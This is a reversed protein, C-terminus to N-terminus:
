ISEGHFAGKGSENTKNIEQSVARGIEAAPGPSMMEGHTCAVQVEKIEGRVYPAWGDLTPSDATRGETAVFFLLDGDLRAPDFTRVLEINNIWTDILNSVQEPTLFRLSDVKEDVIRMFKERNMTPQDEAAVPCGLDGLILTLAEHEPVREEDIHYESGPYSDLIALLAIEENQRRLETAMAYAVLGGFSWGLLHYPGTPQVARIQAVYDRAMADVSPPCLKPNTLSRAQLAYLPRGGEVSGLLNVYSWAFGMGPHICFLPPLEGSTRLPLLVDLPDRDSGVTTVTEALAAVTPSEFLDRVTLDVRLVDRVRSILRTALLSHGGLDFFSDHVGVAPLQLVEAFLGALIEETPTRSAAHEPSTQYTPAPLAARDIKGNGTLPLAELTVIAAPIMFAPLHASLETRLQVIDLHHGSAPVVYGVLQKGTHDERAIVVSQAVHPLRDLAAEIEGLEIRFGRIKVQDDSRGVFELEGEATWRVVDGTRYMREGPQGFADAIFREATQDPRAYYGRALGAGALYLEGPVGPPLPQLRQDLVYARIGDMPRGIPITAAEAPVPRPVPTYTAFTTTETPGYVHVIRTDPLADTAARMASPSVFEGGTWIEALGELGPPREDVLHNFLATTLFVATVNQQSIVDALRAPELIGPPAVVVRGGNLLPIWIEYTSADFAHPSHMLVCTHASAHWARDTALAIVDAHTVAVGKPLGTSGSTFMVYALRDGRSDATAGGEATRAGIQGAATQGDRGDADRTGKPQGTSGSTFMVYAPRDGRSDATTGSEATRAGIQGATTQGDRGDTDRTGKPLGASGSTFMVHALREGRSGGALGAEATRADIQGAATQGDANRTDRAQDEGPQDDDVVLLPLGLEAARERMATDTLLIPTNTHEAVWRMRETPFSPHLPVYAGGAKLVALSAVIVQPSRELLMAVPTEAGVGAATLRSALAQARANLETYTWTVGDGCVAVADPSARVWEDFVEVVSRDTHINSPEAIAAQLIDQREGPTLIGIDAIPLDPNAIVSELIQRLRQTLATATHQTFLDTNFELSGQFGDAQRDSNVHEVVEFTLDFKATNSHVPRVQTELGNLRMDAEFATRYTLMVHALPHIGLARAPNLEEVLRDFPLDQNSYAALDTGRVRGLVERFSPTGSIDVRLVLTNVFFGVLDDLAEDVRGAVVSGLPIDTGAGLRHLLTVLAAHIVMFVSVDHQRALQQIRAHTKPDIRFEVTGGRGTPHAPRPRDFPLDLQEPAGRLTERWFALQQDLLAGKLLERQWLVYDGYSVPLPEWEPAEGRCRAAYAEGLDRALPGLSWGDAAIHHIVLLLTWRQAGTAFLWARVPLDQDLVFPTSAAEILRQRLDESAPDSVQLAVRVQEVDLVRQYPHGQRSEFVTRLPEHRAVVDGLAQELATVNLPGFIDVALPINYAAGTEQMQDLFWLRQQAFSLPLEPSKHERAHVAPRVPGDDLRAALAEVTPAEFLDRVSLESQLVSRVRSILRTALLSHGGLDFFNDHVGVAPLQLVEAFLGALIEQMVTRALTHDSDSYTPAPLASRDIKGNPTLPLTKLTMIAAPIMFAPLHASLEARLQGGDVQHESTPVVYGVLQKGTHDERAVVASQAVHPLRDLAAEIEGLEIRFGRIKVQDDSRGIFELEGDTTWRVLDGTRYMREGPRGFTDAIFREATQDPRAYYGRALGAGALYLEGPVGPPLLRLRQDLVYARMGDMPRGIPITAAEAPIPRSLPICTAFTTTETPGYVHVIQTHPFADTAARMASPSVFEGGTWIEALGELGPPHEDVLHNFLATTLFVATVNQQSIVQALRAPELIGAPAVVIRGGNLLPVWIEYTSADFAHPSHMLVRTHASTHWARDTALAVVDAHTVAVGKPQGTSGSTFMVYALREGGVSENGSRYRGLRGRDGDTPRDAHSGATARSEATQADIQGATTQGDRGDTDRTGKPLGTSGSTFMVHALREGRSGGALGAEATRADIQGAATQGDANRTDRAQDEGPQDDDVVLLPLGLEAARERMATDTLLIPTNTHEAVWRMRETPFSPHLPVYAGGAKLVALSAVIVQPSRELLMAVPTEADVGTATLRSALAQARANLEAYTWTLGDGCVAVADPSARVWEDFVEVVSTDTKAANPEATAAAVVQQQESPTLIDLDDVPLDPDAIVTEVIQRLRQTLATATHQTFLDTNFELSGQIGDARKDEDFHEIVEFTLDFKATGSHVPRVRTELGNLRMDAEFATRYALMVHALPHIGLARAPNLEEVLRDFPLDQNSYAALDTERVRHLLERFSPNGSIDVRLVLTNVFFGVLDDLTEDVRGAVVSGLPIDTGAGLRHLLTVLAAHIVMFTSVGHERAVTQIRTHTQPDIQFEVTDGQGSPHAPRPRDFPLDLQEPAGRLTERWFALQKDLLEGELLDHQWLVYDRFSVPLPEWTPAEGRCRAAYADALDRALPGLSWGDAAIHHIVLLLTWRQAGTAFLWARVPVEGDLLFPAGAADALAPELGDSGLDIVQMLVQDVELVRQYPRGERALFVTRLSEHRAVVDGLAQELATVNLPGSIDVALPINYAAGTEQMQDLFWLRQQAFSLPLEPSTHERARVAPRVPGDDLRAALAEVTPAEFLDRVSLESRLVSRVRSILRTALLSHGGLDFFSDRMGVAPLQLVEAFLGALIEQMVTRALAHSGDSYTPAPLGGRDIKGNPTLPLAELVVVAAPVMFAPLHAALEARLQVGDVQHGSAPVVYGVLQKGAHDERAVVVSQGVRPLRDLAAEIEGLEIRFGRIKVQDDSRGIFELEGETTWRVLDGTRYMREGPGGFVDAVFREATLDPRGSYGRALGVGAIYLEGPVGPPVPQLWEDLVYTRMGTIPGGITPSAAPSLPASMTACVTTETPGYANIMQRGASWAAVVEAPCSEGAVVLTTVSPLDYEALQTLASPPLTVHTVAHKAILGALAEGPLLEEARAVVLTAGTLLSMCFEWFMADFSPSAFQLVRCGSDLAFAETQSRTLNAIGAHTVVVGKPRGTSGSTYIVYAPNAPHPPAWRNENSRTDAIPSDLLIMRHQGPLEAAVESTTLVLAPEADTLMYAIRESPYALDIPLYAGGAKLTAVIAVVMEVSRPLAMAVVQEPGIGNAVLHRALRDTRADLQAYSLREDGYILATETPVRAVQKQFLEVFTGQQDVSETGGWSELIVMREDASLVDLNGVPTDVDRIASQLVRLLRDVLEQATRREFLDVNYELRGTNETIEFTLDFRSVGVHPQRLETKLGPLELSPEGQSHFVLMTQTLPHVGLTRAPNLEQVLRDFPLDQNSYATLDTERVRHLLERFSPNGSIDVRLVLTNVFFGVLDDLAEDVRGAVVSGLPIDTGAGLRHLLSVLAAHIVMFASVGHERAVSQIRTHTQPDIQFEVTGGRGTPHAPRPRDFPLDLQEPAGRLTERWFALQQDLLEGQLLERQWLVYDRFSVPLPEWTPAEGRCRATYADALDRALPGLSWGDAAIHHIVLLLTWRQPGAAFLWARVPLDAGLAFPAAAADALASELGDPGTEIVRWPVLAQGPGLVRQYPHGQRSDFVTRLPEHRAVVDGLTQELATVNLPGSIDVALPINYAASAEQAQDLFWLRQQAFSLPLEPSKHERSHVAPRVPGDDLRAALAEVTPAEFLDRVSLESQLVSRVRSILRTALLSHGGLDFFSDHVGVAPLQLVEAFLGALIEETPTRSAAHEPSTEYTPAPLAARDIKGNGTLPLTELPVMAAPIMFAPLHASLEARLQVTDLRHGSAPVVYGVLQKGTHDERAVVVSQAVHPLRDLAAEIEGLEIRFGRIKVQDDSRGIFELEGETTRRVLDGTRYMREGPRGFTDAIFREATLDPRAYYGRALGAGALYLEGPVGPPLLRLRQDLVYARMGDMPRGIPITAAEAPISRPVPTYTAFTTTETPGYVHVIRTDPFADSAARMASPSVFEGGTWIEALGELGPPCEEVLLNFLATTLFVATVKQQSIVKALRAPELIGPPAVVIRGGNLLPVWIEYTSADFAHPSHMLVRAHATTHWARDTALAIVDAHTVAVGKPLGTSGSTFMVYALREGGASGNGSGDLGLRSRDGDTPRDGRSGAMARSEATRADIQGTATQGHRGDADRAGRAQGDRIRDGGPQDDDVVLFPLGLEAARERMATDTLLIPTNTHEAVWRMRETPFSPHLPVYAGGAKLVALSAVIVQPSRELLMAVPTEADVGAATLRTALAEARADLETYTWTVGDGCVAVADPSVRVWEGFVEVVSPSVLRDGLELGAVRAGRTLQRVFEPLDRLDADSHISIRQSDLAELADTAHWADAVRQALVDLTEEGRVRVSFPLSRKADASEARFFIEARTTTRHLYAAIIALAACRRSAPPNVFNEAIGRDAELFAVDLEIGKEFAM